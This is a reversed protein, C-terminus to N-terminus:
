IFILGGLDCLPEDSLSIPTFGANTVARCIAEGDPHSMIDGLFYVERGFVGSAGGIFGYECGSLAIHGQSIETVKIGAGSLARSMGCDATIASDGFSLVTCAPYGQNVHIIEYGRREAFERVAESLTDSKAFIRKGVVLANMICDRPYKKGRTESSFSIKVERCYERLDSFIYSACDCYDATTIIENDARFLITDPHSSVAEGLSLDPPLAIVKFGRLTLARECKPSIKNSAIVIKM